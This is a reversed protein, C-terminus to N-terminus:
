RIIQIDEDETWLEVNNRFRGEAKLKDYRKGAKKKWWAIINELYFKDWNQGRVLEDQEGNIVERVNAYGYDSIYARKQQTLSFAMQIVSNFKNLKDKDQLSNRIISIMKTQRKMKKSSARNETLPQNDNWETFANHLEHFKERHLLPLFKSDTLGKYRIFPKLGDYQSASTTSGYLSTTEFLAIDKEFVKSVQERAYHSVCMLALLKGGLYNFGFPQSPVIAFGMVAHRNFRSLDPAKGLWINRPKSNITPSGFRIFGIIKKTNKEYVMWRLERGPINHEIVHSSTATLYKIYIDQSISDQFRDGVFKVEFDMDQPHIDENLFADKDSIGPIVAMSSVAQGKAYRLYDEISSFNQFYDIFKDAAWEAKNEDVVSITM